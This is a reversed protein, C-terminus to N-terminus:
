WKPKIYPPNLGVSGEFNHDSESIVRVAKVGKKPYITACGDTLREVRKFKEGDTSVEVIGDPMARKTVGERGTVIKIERCEVPEDFTYLIWDGKRCCCDTLVLRYKSLREM